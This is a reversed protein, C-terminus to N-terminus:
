RHKLTETNREALSKTSPHGPGIFKQFIGAEKYVKQFLDSTFKTANDSVMVKFFGTRAFVNQLMEVSSTTTPTSKNIEIEAWKSKADIIM